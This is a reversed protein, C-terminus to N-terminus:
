EEVGNARRIAPAIVMQALVNIASFLPIAIVAGLLGGVAAGAVVAFIALLPSISTQSRMILPVLIHGEAQQLVIAYAVTILAVQPSVSLAVLTAITGSIIPGITPFLEMLGALAGLTLAYPVGVITLGIYTLSGIILGNIAAGRLYGGMGLGIQALVASAFWSQDPRFFSLAYRKLQPMLLLWYLSLFLVLVLDFLFSFLGVPLRVLFDGFRGAENLIISPLSSTYIGFLALYNTIKPLWIHSTSILMNIQAILVPVTSGLIGAIILVLGLYVLVVALTRPIRRSMREVVPALAAAISVALVLLALPRSLYRFIEMGGIGLILGVALASVVWWWSPIKAGRESAGREPAGQRDAPSQPKPEPKQPLADM